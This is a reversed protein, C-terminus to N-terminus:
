ALEPTRLFESYGTDDVLLKADGRILAMAEVDARFKEDVREFTALDPYDFEVILENLKGSVWFTAEPWGRRRRLANLKQEQELLEKFHGFRAQLHVRFRYMTRCAEM